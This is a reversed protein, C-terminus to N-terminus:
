MGLFDQIKGSNYHSSRASSPSVLRSMTKRHVDGYGLEVLKDSMVM